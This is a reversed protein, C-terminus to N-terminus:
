DTAEEPLPMGRPGKQQPTCGGGKTEKNICEMRGFDLGSVVRWGTHWWGQGCLPNPSGDNGRRSYFSDLITMAALAAGVIPKQDKRNGGCRVAGGWDPGVKCLM